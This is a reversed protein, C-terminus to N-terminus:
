GILNHTWGRLSIALELISPEAFALADSTFQGEPVETTVTVDCRAKEQTCAQIAIADGGAAEVCAVFQNDCFEQTILPFVSVIWCVRNIDGINDLLRCRVLLMLIM